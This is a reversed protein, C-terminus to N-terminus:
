ASSTLGTAGGTVAPSCCPVSLASRTYSHPFPSPKGTIPVIGVSINGSAFALQSGYPCEHRSFKILRQGSSDGGSRGNALIAFGYATKPAHFFAQTVVIKKLWGPFAELLFFAIESGVVRNIHGFSTQATTL